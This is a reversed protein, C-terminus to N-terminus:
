NIASIWCLILYRANEWNRTQISSIKKCCHTALMLQQPIHTCFTLPYSATKGWIDPDLANDQWADWYIQEQSVRSEGQGRRCLSCGGLQGLKVPILQFIKLYELMQGTLGAPLSICVSMFRDPPWPIPRRSVESGISWRWICSFEFQCIWALLYVEPNDNLLALSPVYIRDPGPFSNGSYKLHMQTCM